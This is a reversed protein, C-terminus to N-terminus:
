EAAALLEVQAEVGHVSSSEGFDTKDGPNLINVNAGHPDHKPWRGKHVLAVGRPVDASIKVVLTLRGTDNWLSVAVGDALRRSQAEDPHLILCALGLRARVKADNGYSSNMTWASAPSLVRLKGNMAPEDAHPFPALPLGDAAARKSAIEIRGSPTPFQRDAYQIDSVGEPMATGVQALAAFGKSWGAQQLLTEIIAQDSEFLEPERYDMKAALRRFIEQNPLADGFPEVVKVVASVANHFYPFLVDDFELFSAAPLVYDAHDATDTQFLDVVVHLLDERRL